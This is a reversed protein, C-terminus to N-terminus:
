IVKAEKLRNLEEDTMRLIGKFVEDNHQGLMPGAKDVKSPTKSFKITPGVLKMTGATPHEVEVLMGRQMFHPDKVAEDIAYIPGIPVDHENFLEIVEEKTREIMWDKILPELYAANKLREVNSSYRPDDKLEPKGIADALRNAVSNSATGVAVWGNSTEYFNYPSLAPHRNGIRGAVNGSATYRLVAHELISFISDTMAVDIHQGTGSVGREYLAACIGVTTYLAASIDGLAVGVKTPPGDPYGNLSAIGGMAQAIPDYAVKTVYPSNKQGFGSVSAMVIRPNIKSLEEYGLGFGEMTGPTFNELVVDATKVLEKFIKQAEPKSLNLTIGKKNRNISHFYTSEGNLFPAGTRTEDGTGPMEVKIVEAGLDALILGCFPGAVVRTADLVMIGALTTKSM